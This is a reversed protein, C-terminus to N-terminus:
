QEINGENRLQSRELNIWVFVFSVFDLIVYFELTMIQSFNRLVNRSFLSSQLLNCQINTERIKELLLFNRTKGCQTSYVNFM